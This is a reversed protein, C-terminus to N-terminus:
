GDLGSNSVDFYVNQMRKMSVFLEGLSHSWSFSRKRKGGTLTLFLAGFAAAAIAVGTGAIM